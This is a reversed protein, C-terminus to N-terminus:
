RRTDRHSAGGSRPFFAWKQPSDAAIRDQDVGKVPPGLESPDRSRSRWRRESTQDFSSMRDRLNESRRFDRDQKASVAKLVSIPLRPSDCQSSPRGASFIVALFPHRPVGRLPHTSSSTRAPLLSRACLRKTRCRRMATAPPRNSTRVVALLRSGAHSRNATALSGM